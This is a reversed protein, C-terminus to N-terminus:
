IVLTTLQRGGSLLVGFSSSIKSNKGNKCLCISIILGFNINRNPPTAAFAIKDVGRARPFSLPLHCSYLDSFKSPDIGAM